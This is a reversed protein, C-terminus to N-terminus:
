RYPLLIGHWHISTPVDISNHFSIKASDGERFRSTPGPISGNLAMAKIIKGTLNIIKYDINIKYEVKEAFVFNACLLLLFIQIMIRKKM